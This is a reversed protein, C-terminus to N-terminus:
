PKGKTDAPSSFFPAQPKVNGFDPTFHPADNSLVARHHLPLVASEPDTLRPEFGLRAVMSKVGFVRPKGLTKPTKRQEARGGGNAWFDRNGRLFVGWLVGMPLSQIQRRTQM